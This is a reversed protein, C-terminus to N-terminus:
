MHTCWYTCLRQIWFLIICELKRLKWLRQTEICVNVIFLSCGSIFTKGNMCRNEIGTRHLFFFVQQMWVFLFFDLLAFSSSKTRLTWTGPFCWKHCITCNLKFSWMYLCSNFSFFFLGGTLKNWINFYLPDSCQFLINKLFINREKIIFSSFFLCM